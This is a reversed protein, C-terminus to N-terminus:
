KVFSFPQKANIQAIREADTAKGNGASGGASSGGGQHQNDRLDRKVDPLALYTKFGTDFAVEGDPDAPDKWFVKNEENVGLKRTLVLNEIRAATGYHTQQGEANQFASTLTKSVTNNNKDTEAKKVKGKESELDGLTTTLQKQLKKFAPQEELKYEEGSGNTKKAQKLAGLFEDVDIEGETDYGINILSANLGEFQTQLTDLSKKTKLGVSRHTNTQSKLSNVSNLVKDYLEAKDTGLADQLAQRLEEDM